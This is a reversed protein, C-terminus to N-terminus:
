GSSMKEVSEIKRSMRVSRPGVSIPDGILIFHNLGRRQLAYQIARTKACVCLSVMIVLASQQRYKSVAPNLYPLSSNM